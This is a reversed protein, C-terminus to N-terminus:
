IVYSIIHYIWGVFVLDDVKLNDLRQHSRYVEFDRHLTQVEGVARLSGGESSDALIVAFHKANDTFAVRGELVADQERLDFGQELVASVPVLIVSEFDDIATPLHLRIEAEGVNREESARLLTRQSDGDLITEIARQLDCKIDSKESEDAGIAHLNRQELTRSYTQHLLVRRGQIQIESLVSQSFGHILNTLSAVDEGLPSTGRQRLAFTVLNEVSEHRVLRHGLTEGLTDTFDPVLRGIPFVRVAIDPVQVIADRFMQGVLDSRLTVAQGLLDPSVRRFEQTCTDAIADLREEHVSERGALFAGGAIVLGGSLPSPCVVRGTGQTV